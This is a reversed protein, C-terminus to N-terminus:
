LRSKILDIAAALRNTFSETLTFCFVFMLSYAARVFVHDAQMMREGQDGHGVGTAGKAM